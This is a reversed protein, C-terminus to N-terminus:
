QLIVVRSLPMMNSDELSEGDWVFVRVKYNTIDSPLRFGANLSEEAGKAIDKATYSINVMKENGDYLAVIAMVKDYSGGLNKVVAQAELLRDPQLSNMNFAVTIKYGNEGEEEEEEEEEEKEVIVTAIAKINTGAVTGEVTFTGENEYLSPDIADWVVAVDKETGDSYVATVTSPLQPKEGAKTTVEVPKISEITPEIQPEEEEEYLAKVEEETLAKNYIRFDDLTANLWAGAWTPGNFGMYKIDSPDTATISSPDGGL